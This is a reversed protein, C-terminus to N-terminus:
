WARGERACLEREMADTLKLDDGAPATSRAYRNMWGGIRSLAEAVCHRLAAAHM